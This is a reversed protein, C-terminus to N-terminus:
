VLRVWAVVVATLLLLGVMKRSHRIAEEPAGEKYGDIMARVLNEGHLLSSVLVGAVHVLVVGLMINALAEHLEALWEGALERDTAYGTAAAAVGLCLLAYIALSGAPNHGVYPPARGAALARLYHLVTAPGYTFSAFRAHRSGVVV